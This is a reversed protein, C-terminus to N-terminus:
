QPFELEVLAMLTGPDNEPDNNLSEETIDEWAWQAFVDDGGIEAVTHNLPISQQLANFSLVAILLGAAISGGWLGLRHYISQRQGTTYAASGEDQITLQKMIKQQLSQRASNDIRASDMTRLRALQRDLATAQDHLSKLETSAALMNLAAQREDEPWSSPSSGYCELIQKLRSQSVPKSTTNSM